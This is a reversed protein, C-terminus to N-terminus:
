FFCGQDSSRGIFYAVVERKAIKRKVSASVGSAQSYVRLIEEFIKHIKLKDAKKRLLRGDLASFYWAVPQGLRFVISHPINVYPKDRGHNKHWLCRYLSINLGSYNLDNIEM